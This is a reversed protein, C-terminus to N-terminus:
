KSRVWTSTMKRELAVSQTITEYGIFSISVTYKGDAIKHITFKGKADAITGDITKGQADALAITAFEVPLNTGNDTVTGSIKGTGKPIEQAQTLIATALLVILTFVKKM